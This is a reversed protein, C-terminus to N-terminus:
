LAVGVESAMGAQEWEPVGGVLRQAKFGESLLLEVAQTSSICYPDRCYAVIDTRPLQKMQVQLQAMPINIAGPIHAQAFESEPRVDILTINQEGMRRRLETVTIGELKLPQFD